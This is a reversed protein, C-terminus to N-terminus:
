SSVTSSASDLVSGTNCFSMMGKLIANALIPEECSVLIWMSCSM